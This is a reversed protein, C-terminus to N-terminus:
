FRSDCNRWPQCGNIETYANPLKIQFYFYNKIGVIWFVREGVSHIYYFLM